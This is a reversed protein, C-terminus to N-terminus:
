DRPNGPMGPMAGLRALMQSLEGPTIPFHECVRGCLLATPVNRGREKQLQHLLHLVTRERITLGDRVDPLEQRPDRSM